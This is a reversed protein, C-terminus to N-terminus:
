VSKSNKLQVKPTALPRHRKNDKVRSVWDLINYFHTFVDERLIMLGRIKSGIALISSAVGDKM